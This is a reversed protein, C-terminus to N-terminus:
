IEVKRNYEMSSDNENSQFIEKLKCLLLRLIFKFHVRWHSANVPYFVPIVVGM